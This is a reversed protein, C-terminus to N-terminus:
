GGCGDLYGLDTIFSLLTFKKDAFPALYVALKFDKSSFCNQISYGKDAYIRKFITLTNNTIKDAADIASNLERRYESLKHIYLKKDYENLDKFKKLLESESIGTLASLREARECFDPPPLLDVPVSSLFMQYIKILKSLSLYVLEGHLKNEDLIILKLMDAINDAAGCISQGLFCSALSLNLISLALNELADPRLDILKNQYSNVNELAKKILDTVNECLAEGNLINSIQRDFLGISSGLVTGYASAIVNKPCELMINLDMLFVNPSVSKFNNKLGNRYLESFESLYSVSSLDSAICILPVGKLSAFYKSINAINDSGFCVILKCGEFVANLKGADELSPKFNEEFLFINLIHTKYLIKEIVKSKEKLNKATIYLISGAPLLKVATESLGDLANKSFLIETKLIHKKGCPCDFGENFEKIKLDKLNVM